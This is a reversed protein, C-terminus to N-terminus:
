ACIWFPIPASCLIMHTLVISADVQGYLRKDGYHNNNEVSKNYCVLLLLPADFHCPSCQKIKAHAAQSKIVVIRQPQRNGATPAIRGAELIRSLKDQEVPRDSYKRVSFRTFIIDDYDM